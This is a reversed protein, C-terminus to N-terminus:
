FSLSFIKSTFKRGFTMGPTPDFLPPSSSLVAIPTVMASSIGFAAGLGLFILGATAEGGSADSTSKPRHCSSADVACGDDSPWDIKSLATAGAVFELAVGIGGVIAATIWLGKRVGRHDSVVIDVSTESHFPIPLTVVDGFAHMRYNSLGDADFSCPSACVFKWEFRGAQREVIGETRVNVRPGGDAHATNSAFGVAFITAAAIVVVKSRLCGLLM